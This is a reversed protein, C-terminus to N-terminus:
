RTMLTWRRRRPRQGANFKHPPGRGGVAVKDHNGRILIDPSLQFVRDVVENPSAGYGVLDGLVLLQDYTDDSMEALVAELADMNAHIDSLILARM